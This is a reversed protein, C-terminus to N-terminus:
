LRAGFRDVILRWELNHTTLIRKTRKIENRELMITLHIGLCGFSHLINLFDVLSDLGLNLLSIILILPLGVFVAFLGQELGFIENPHVQSLFPKRSFSLGFEHRPGIVM